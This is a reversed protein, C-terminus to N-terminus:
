MFSINELSDNSRFLMFHLMFLMLLKENRFEHRVKQFAILREYKKDSPMETEPRGELWLLLDMGSYAREHMKNALLILEGYTPEKGFSVEKELWEARQQRLKDLAAGAFTNRLLHTHLNVQKGDIVPEPVHIECFRSLIPRLLKCKDEVVIFFRTSHNFLEICRRLASQADTTLKDANMLVVSKFIEGDKLDVNTKAFFKLDERIFRIGKGHACNVHMVYDKLAGKNNGYISRIFNWALTNKGCGSAGHFIINPIKKQTIFYRLKQRIDGHIDLQESAPETKPKKVVRVRPNKPTALVSESM